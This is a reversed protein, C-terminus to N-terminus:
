IVLIHCQLVPCAPICHLFNKFFSLLIKLHIRFVKPQVRGEREGEIEGGVM